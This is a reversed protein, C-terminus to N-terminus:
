ECDCYVQTTYSWLQLWGNFLSVNVTQVAFHLCPAGDKGGACPGTTRKICIICPFGQISGIPLDSSKNQHWTDLYSTSQGSVINSNETNIQSLYSNVTSKSLYGLNDLSDLTVGRGILEYVQGSNISDRNDIYLILNDVLSDLKATSTSRTTLKGSEVKKNINSDKECGIVFILFLLSLAILYNNKM